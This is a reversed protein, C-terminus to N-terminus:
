SAVSFPINRTMTKGSLKDTVKVELRYEGEPFSGLPVSQGAVLQHGAAPDFQPPLTSANFNQPNTKNFFKEGKEAKEDKQYFGYEVSVDPKKNADQQTNYVIFVISLEDAKKFNTSMAPTIKTMGLTYPQEIMEQRTLPAALPEVNSAVIISSTALEGNWFDPVTVAQKLVGTKVTANKDKKDKGVPPREKTVVIVDYDGTPVSFARSLQYPKGAAPAKLDVFYVDEFAFEPKQNKDKGKDKKDGAAPAAAAAAAAAGKAVVRLYVTASPTPLHEAPISITFPVYTRGEQAKLYDNQFTMTVDTPTPLGAQADDAIKLAIKIEEQQAKELKKDKKQEQALVPSVSAASAVFLAVTLPTLVWRRIHM